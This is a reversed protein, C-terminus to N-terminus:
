FAWLQAETGQSAVNVYTLLVPLTLSLVQWLTMNCTVYNMVNLRINM